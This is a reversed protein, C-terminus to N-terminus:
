APIEQQNLISKRAEGALKDCLANLPFKDFSELRQEYAPTTCPGCLRIPSRPTRRPPDDATMGCVPCRWSRVHGKVHVWSVDYVECANALLQWLEQNKVPERERTLWGNRRWQEVWGKTIGHMVYESDTHVTVPRIATLAALGEIVATLEAGNNTTYEIPGSGEVQKLVEGTRESIARLVFAWGGPGGGAVGSGDTWCELRM